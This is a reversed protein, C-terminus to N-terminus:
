RLIIVAVIVGLLALFCVGVMVAIAILARSQVNLVPEQRNFAATSVWEGGSCTQPNAVPLVNTSDRNGAHCRKEGEACAKCNGSQCYGLWEVPSSDVKFEYYEDRSPTFDTVKCEGMAHLTFTTTPCKAVRDTEGACGHQM